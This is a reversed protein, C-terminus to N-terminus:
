ASRELLSRGKRGLGVAAVIVLGLLLGFAADASKLVVQLGTTATGHTDIGLRGLLEHLLHHVAPLHHVVIGGGVFFMAATGAISLARM